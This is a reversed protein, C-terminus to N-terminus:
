GTGLYAMVCAVILGVVVLLELHDALRDLVAKRRPSLWAGGGLGAARSALDAPIPRGSVLAYYLRMKASRYLWFLVVVLIGTAMMLRIAEDAPVRGLYGKGALTAFYLTVSYVAILVRSLPSNTAITYIIGIPLLFHLAAIYVANVGVNDPSPMGALTSAIAYLLTGVVSLVSLAGVAQLLGPPEVEPMHRYGPTWLRLKAGPRM